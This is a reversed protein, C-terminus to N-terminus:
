LVPTGGNTMDFAQLDAIAQRYADGEAGFLWANFASTDTISAPAKDGIAKVATVLANRQTWYAEAGAPSAHMATTM